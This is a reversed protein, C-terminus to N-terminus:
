REDDGGEVGAHASPFQQTFPPLVNIEGTSQEKDSVRFRRATLCPFDREGSTEKFEEQRHWSFLSEYEEEFASREAPDFRCPRRRYASRFNTVVSKVIKAVGEVCPEHFGSNHLFHPLGEHAM